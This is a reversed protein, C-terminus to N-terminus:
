IGQRKKKSKNPTLTCYTKIGMKESAEKNRKVKCSDKLDCFRCLISTSNEKLAKSKIQKLKKKKVAM